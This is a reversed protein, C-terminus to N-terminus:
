KGPRDWKAQLTNWISIIILAIDKRLTMNDIYELDYELKQSAPLDYSGKIQALGTLGPTVQLRKEFAPNESVFIDHLEPREARPGVFSMEGKLINLIQPLEDIATWRLIKGFPTIRDDEQISWVPGTKSEANPVM